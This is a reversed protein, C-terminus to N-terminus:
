TLGQGEHRADDTDMAPLDARWPPREVRSLLGQQHQHVQALTLREGLDPGPEPTDVVV